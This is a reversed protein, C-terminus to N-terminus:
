EGPRKIPTSSKGSPFRQSPAVGSGLAKRRQYLPDFVGGECGGPGEEVEGGAEVEVGVGGLGEWAGEGEFEAVVVGVVLVRGHTLVVDDPGVGGLWAGVEWLYGGPARKGEAEGGSLSQMLAM